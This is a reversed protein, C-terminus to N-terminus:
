QVINKIEEVIARGSRTCGVSFLEEKTYFDRCKFSMIIDSDLDIPTMSDPVVEYKAEKKIKMLISNVIIDYNVRSSDENWNYFDSLISFNAIEVEYIDSLLKGNEIPVDYEDSSIDYYDDISVNEDFNPNKNFDEEKIIESGTVADVNTNRPLLKAITSILIGVSALLIVTLVLISKIKNKM